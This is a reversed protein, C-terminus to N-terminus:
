PPEFIWKRRPQKEMHKRRRSQQATVSKGMTESERLPIDGQKQTVFNIELRLLSSHGMRELLRSCVTFASACFCFTPQVTKEM